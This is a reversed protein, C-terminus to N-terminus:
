FQFYLFESEQWLNLISLVGLVVFIVAYVRTPHWNIKALLGRSPGVVVHLSPRYDRMIQQSNPFVFAVVLGSIVLLWAKHDVTGTKDFLNAMAKVIIVGGDLSEARFFVWAFVVVMFTLFWGLFNKGHSPLFRGWGITRWIHNISLFLGHLGGWIVFSWGAGHWLGGLLMVIMVNRYRLIGYRGRGGGLPIYLYDRLFRSLTMHWRRWFEIISTAQYPSNFNLPLRIGFMRALGLAMDSYGSFDFYIQASYALAGLWAATFSIVEGADAAGFVPSAIPALQDAIIVKKFLGIILMTLGVSLNEFIDQQKQAKGEFQPMMEAHHVIPGAILQPFFAIFLGYRIINRDNYQGRSADILFAIQQFTFFSIGLPLFVDGLHYQSDILGDLNDLFFNAYKFYGILSLNGIVGISLWLKGGSNSLVRGLFYNVTISALLLLVFPPNWWGYFFLSAIFLFGIAWTISVKNRLAYFGVLSAPLFVFLFIASNFLM